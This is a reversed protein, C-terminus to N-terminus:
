DHVELRGDGLLPRAHAMAGIRVDALRVKTWIRCVSPLLAIPRHGGSAKALLLIRAMRM